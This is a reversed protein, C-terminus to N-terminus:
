RLSPPFIAPSAPGSGLSNSTRMAAPGRGCPWGGRPGSSPGGCFRGGRKSRGGPSRGGRSPSGRSKWGWSRGGCSRGPGGGAVSGGQAFIPAPRGGADPGDSGDPRGYPSFAFFPGRALMADWADRDLYLRDAPLPRYPVEGDRPVSRRASYHDAIMDLRATLVEDGQSDISASVGPLFDLLTEMGEHFLPVWHEMGPHRRGDSISLYLPDSAAAQGFLERWATRFQAVSPKDLFVESVPRLVLQDAKGASRQTAPDFSRISEIDDGFLDLRLPEPVGSPFIDMIGGRLAFEGPEMVTAARGYGNAELFRALEEPKVQDGVKLVRSGGHFAHRPPVRQVLANVTTLVIRQGTPPELLRSLTAIRESVLEPNPSVRDYPLCDWAPFRLVEADPAFFALSEALRAMRADDRAIHLLPGKHEAGRRALLVADWGEPAGHITTTM